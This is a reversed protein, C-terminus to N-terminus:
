EPSWPLACPSRWRWPCLLPLLLTGSRLGLVFVHLHLSCGARPCPARIPAPSGPDPQSSQPPALITDAGVVGGGGGPAAGVHECKLFVSIRINEVLYIGFAKSVQFSSFLHYRGSPREIEKWDRSDGLRPSWGLVAPGERCTPPRATEAGCHGNEQVDSDSLRLRLVVSTQM